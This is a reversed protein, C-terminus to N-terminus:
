PSHEPNRCKGRRDLYQGCHRCVGPKPAVDASDAPRLTATFENYGVRKLYAKTERAISGNRSSTADWDFLLKTAELRDREAEALRKAYGSSENAAQENLDAERKWSAAVLEAEHLRERLAELDCLACGQYADEGHRDCGYTETTIMTTFWRLGTFM